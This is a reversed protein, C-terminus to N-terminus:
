CSYAQTVKRARLGVSIFHEGRDSDLRDLLEKCANRFREAQPSQEVYRARQRLRFEDVVKLFGGGAIGVPKCGKESSSRIPM